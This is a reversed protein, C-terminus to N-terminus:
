LQPATILRLNTFAMQWATGPASVRPAASMVRPLDAALHEGADTGHHRPDRDFGVADLCRLHQYVRSNAHLRMVEMARPDVQGPTSRLLLEVLLRMTLAATHWGSAALGGFITGTAAAESLHFPQPEFEAAFATIGEKEVRVRGSEFTQGVAYDELYRAIM